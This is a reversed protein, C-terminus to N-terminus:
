ADELKVEDGELKGQAEAKSIPEISYSHDDVDAAQNGGRLSAVNESLRGVGQGSMRREDGHRVCADPLTVEDAKDEFLSGSGRYTEDMSALVGRLTEIEGLLTEFREGVVGPSIAPSGDHPDRGRRPDSPEAAAEDSEDRASIGAVCDDMLARARADLDAQRARLEEDARGLGLHLVEELEAATEELAERGATDNTSRRAALELQQRELETQRQAIEAQISRRKSRAAEALEATKQQLEVQRARVRQREDDLCVRLDRQRDDLKEQAEALRGAETELDRRCCEAEDIQMALRTDQMDMRQLRMSLEDRERRLSQQSKELAQLRGALESDRSEHRKRSRAVVGRLRRIETQMSELQKEARDIDERGALVLEALEGAEGLIASDTKDNMDMPDAAEPMDQPGATEATFECDHMEMPEAAKHMEMPEAAEHMEVPEAVEHMEVPEVAEPMDVPEVMEHATEAVHDEDVAAKIQAGDLCAAALEEGPLEEKVSTEHLKKNAFQLLRNAQNQLQIRCTNLREREQDLKERYGQARKDLAVQAAAVRTRLESVRQDLKRSREEMAVNASPENSSMSRGGKDMKKKSVSAAEDRRGTDGVRAETRPMAESTRGDSVGRESAEEPSREDTTDCSDPLIIPAEATGGQRYRADPWLAQLSPVDGLVMRGALLVSTGLDSASHSGPGIGGATAAADRRHEMRPTVDTGDHQTLNEPLSAPAEYRRAADSGTQGAVTEFILEYPGVGISDGGVLRGFDIRRGNLRTECRQQLGRVIPGEDTWVVLCHRPAVAKHHLVVDCGPDNGVILVPDISAVVGITHENRLSFAPEEVGGGACPEEIEVRYQFPGIVIEDGGGLRAWRLRRGNLSTGGPAGLDCLYAGDGLMVIAAHSSDVQSSALILDCADGSGLITVSQVLERPARNGDHNGAILRIRVAREQMMGAQMTVFVENQGNTPM